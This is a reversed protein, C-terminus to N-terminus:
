NSTGNKNAEKLLKSIRDEYNIGDDLIFHFEPVIRIRIERAIEKRIFPISSKLINLIQQKNNDPYISVKVKCYSLDTSTDVEIVSIFINELRPDKLKYAIILSLAKQIESNIKLIRNGAM